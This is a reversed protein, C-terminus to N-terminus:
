TKVKKVKPHSFPDMIRDDWHNGCRIAEIRCLMMFKEFQSPSELRYMMAVSIAINHLSDIHDDEGVYTAGEAVRELHKHAIRCYYWCAHAGREFPPLVGGQLTSHGIFFPMSLNAKWMESPTEM